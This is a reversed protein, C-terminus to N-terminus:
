HKKLEDLGLERMADELERVGDPFATNKHGLVWCLVSRAAMIVTLDDGEIDLALTLQLDEAIMSLLDHVYTLEDRGPLEPTRSTQPSHGNGGDNAKM